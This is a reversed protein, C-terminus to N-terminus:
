YQRGDLLKPTLNAIFMVWIFDALLRHGEGGWRTFSGIVIKREENYRRRANLLLNQAGSRTIVSTVVPLQVMKQMVKLLQCVVGADLGCSRRGSGTPGQGCDETVSSKEVFRAM